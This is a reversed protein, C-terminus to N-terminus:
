DLRTLPVPSTRLCTQCASLGHQYDLVPEPLKSPPSPCRQVFFPAAAADEVFESVASPMVMEAAQIEPDEKAGQAADAESSKNAADELTPFISQAKLWTYHEGYLHSLAVLLSHLGKPQNVSGGRLDFPIRGSLLAELKARGGYSIGDQDRRARSYYMEVCEHLDELRIKNTKQFRLCMWHLSHIFSELDHWAAHEFHGPFFLLVASM